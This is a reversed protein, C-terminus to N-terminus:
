TAAITFYHSLLGLWHIASNPVSALFSRNFDGDVPIWLRKELAIPHSDMTIDRVLVHRDIGDVNETKKFPSHFRHQVEQGYVDVFTVNLTQHIGKM